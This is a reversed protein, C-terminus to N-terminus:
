PKSLAGQSHAAQCTSIIIDRVRRHVPDADMRPHWLASIKFAPVPSPLNFRALSSCGNSPAFDVLCSNPVIAILESQCAIRMADPYGPVVISIKRKLGMSELAGDLCTLAQGEQSAVVHNCSAFHELEAQKSELMSHGLRAIGVYHDHFLFRTRIEPASTGIRGIELDVLGDRLPQAHKDPKAEFRLCIRPAQELVAMAVPGSLWKMFSDSARVTFTLEVSAMDVQHTQPRLIALADRTLEHVHHGLEMARPTPVLGRGARVLLPDGTVVRLRALTRSMASHSLNLRHAASTVSREALLVDLAMLLNLDVNNM